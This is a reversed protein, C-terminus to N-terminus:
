EVLLLEFTGTLSSPAVLAGTFDAVQVEATKSTTNGRYAQAYVNVPKVTSTEAARQTVHAKFNIILKNVGDDTISSILDWKDETITPTGSNLAIRARRPFRVSLDVVNDLGGFLADKGSIDPRNHRVEGVTIKSCSGGFNIFPQTPSGTPNDLM